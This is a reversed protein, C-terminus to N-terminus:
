QSEKQGSGCWSQRSSKGDYVVGWRGEKDLLEETVSQFRDSIWRDIQAVMTNGYKGFSINNLYVWSGVPFKREISSKAEEALLKEKLCKPRLFEPADIGRSRVNTRLIHGPWLHVDLKLTDADIIKVVEAEVVGYDPKGNLLSDSNQYESSHASISSFMLAAIALTLKASTFINLKSM